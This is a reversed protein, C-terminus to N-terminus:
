AQSEFTLSQGCFKCFRYEPQCKGGCYPCFKPVLSGAGQQPAAAGAKKGSGLGNLGVYLAGNAVPAAAGQKPPASAASMVNRSQQQQRAAVDILSGASRRGGRRRGAGSKPLSHKLTSERLFLPRLAPDGRSVRATSYHAYNAEFGQLAAPSVSVVKESNFRSMKKGEYTVRLMWASGPDIFNIVALTPLADSHAELDFCVNQVVLGVHSDL